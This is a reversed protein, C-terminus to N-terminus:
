NGGKNEQIKEWLMAKIMGELKLKDEESLEIGDYSMIVSNRKLAQDFIIIDDNNAWKPVDSRGLLYDTSVDFYEAVKQVKDIGPVRVDWRSVTGAGLGLNRELEAITITRESCLARIKDVINM